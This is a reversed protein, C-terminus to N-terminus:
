PPEWVMSQAAAGFEDRAGYAEVAALEEASM